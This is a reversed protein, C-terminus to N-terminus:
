VFVCYQTKTGVVHIVGQCTEIDTQVIEPMDNRPNNGGKQFIKSGLCVTRSDQGNAMETLGTCYLDEAKVVDDVAHFLLIDTLLDKDALITDLVDSGLEEFAKNTPAFVTWTGVSLADQLEAVQVAACLTSFDDSGCAIDVTNTIISFLCPDARIM